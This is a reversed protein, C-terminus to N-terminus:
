STKNFKTSLLYLASYKFKPSIFYSYNPDASYYINISLILLNFSIYNANSCSISYKLEM